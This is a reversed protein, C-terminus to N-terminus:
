TPHPQISCQGNIGQHRVAIPVGTKQAQDVVAGTGKTALPIYTFCLYQPIHCGLGLGPGEELAGTTPQKGDSSLGHM